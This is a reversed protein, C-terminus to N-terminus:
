TGLFARHAQAWRAQSMVLTWTMEFWWGFQTEERRTYRAGGCVTRTQPGDHGILTRTIESEIVCERKDVYAYVLVDRVTMTVSTFIDELRRM